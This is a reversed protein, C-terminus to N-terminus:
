GVPVSPPSADVVVPETAPVPEPTPQDVNIHPVVPELWRPLWWAHPGLLSMIAPVLAMRVITADIFVAFGHGPRADQGDSRPDARLWSCSIMIAAATTIVRATAGLGIAVSRHSDGTQLWDEHM